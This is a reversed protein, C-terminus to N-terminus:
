NSKGDSKFSAGDDLQCSLQKQHLRDLNSDEHPL